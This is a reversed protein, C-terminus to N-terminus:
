DMDYEISGSDDSSAQRGLQTDPNTDYLDEVNSDGGMDGTLYLQFHSHATHGSHQASAGMQPGIHRGALSSADLDTM